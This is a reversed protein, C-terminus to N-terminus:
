RRADPTSDGFPRGRIRGLHQSGGHRAARTHEVRRDGGFPGVPRPQPAPALGVALGPRGEADPLLKPVIFLSLGKTGPPAGDVRALVMHVINDTIDNDGGSIFIKTGRIRYSGDPQKQAATSSEGVDSGAQPETLCMTGAWVGSFMKECYTQKQQSTGFAEILEAAGLTLGAYMDLSENAGATLETVLLALSKPAHAGGYEPAISLSKFGGEYLRRYAEKFGSPTYVQGNELRCGERDGVANLPGAVETAYRAAENLVSVVEEEGWDEFKGKGLLRGLRLQELLVFRIDRLDPRYWNQTAEM